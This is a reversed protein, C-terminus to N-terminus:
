HAQVAAPTLLSQMLLYEPSECCLFRAFCYYCPFCGNGSIFPLSKYVNNLTPCRALVARHFPSDSYVLEPRSSRLRALAAGAVCVAASGVFVPSSLM